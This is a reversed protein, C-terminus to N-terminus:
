LLSLSQYAPVVTYIKGDRPDAHGSLLTMATADITEGAAPGGCLVVLALAGLSSGRALGRREGSM